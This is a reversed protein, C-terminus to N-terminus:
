AEAAQDSLKKFFVRLTAPDDIQQDFGLRKHTKGCRLDCGWPDIGIMQWSKGRKKLLKNAYLALADRHDNNMHNIVSEAAGAMAQAATKSALLKDAKFWLARAFGGVWHGRDLTMQYFHFDGFDAYLAAEPHSALFRQRLRPRDKGSAKEIRGMVTLRPGTQPNALRSAQEFLLSARDDAALNRSHDSLDSFLLIPSGDFDFAVTVLSGYPAGQFGTGAGGSFVTSLSAARSGRMLQRAAGQADPPSEAPRGTAPRSSPM